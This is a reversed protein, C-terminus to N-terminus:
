RRNLLPGLDRTMSGPGEPLELQNFRISSLQWDTQTMVMRTTSYSLERHVVGLLATASFKM